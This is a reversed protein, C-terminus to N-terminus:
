PLTRSTLPSLTAIYYKSFKILYAWVILSDLSESTMVRDVGVQRTDGDVIPRLGGLHSATLELGQLTLFKDSGPRISLM